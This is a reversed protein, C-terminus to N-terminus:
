KRANREKRQPKTLLKEGTIFCSVTVIKRSGPIYNSWWGTLPIVPFLFAWHTQIFKDADKFLDYTEDVGYRWVRFFFWQIIFFNLM